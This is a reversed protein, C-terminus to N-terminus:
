KIVLKKEENDYIGYELNGELEEFTQVMVNADVGTLVAGKLAELEVAMDLQNLKLSRVAESTQNDLTVDNDILQQLAQNFYDAHDPTSTKFGEVSKSIDKKSVGTLTELKLSDIKM